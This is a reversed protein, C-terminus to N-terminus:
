EYIQSRNEVGFPFHVLEENAVKRAGRPVWNGAGEVQERQM